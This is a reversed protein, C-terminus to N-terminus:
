EECSSLPAREHGQDNSDEKGSYLVEPVEVPDGYRWRLFGRCVAHLPTKASALVYDTQERGLDYTTLCWVPEVIDYHVEWARLLSFPHSELLQGCITWDRTPSWGRKGDFVRLGSGYLSSALWVDRALAKGILYDCARDTLAIIPVHLRPTEPLKTDNTM